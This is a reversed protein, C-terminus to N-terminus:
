KVVQIVESNFIKKRVFEDLKVLIVIDEQERAHFRVETKRRDLLTCQSNKIFESKKLELLDGKTRIDVKGQCYKKTYDKLDKYLIWEGRRDRFRYTPPTIHSTIEFSFMDELKCNDDKKIAKKEMELTPLNSPPEHFEPCHSVNWRVPPSCQASSKLSPSPTKGHLDALLNTIYLQM